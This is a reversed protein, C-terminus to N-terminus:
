LFNQLLRRYTHWQSNLLTSSGLPTFPLLRCHFSISIRHFAVTLTGSHSWYIPPDLSQRQLISTTYYLSYVAVFLFPFETSLSPLYAVTLEHLLTSSELCHHLFPFLRRRFSFSIRHFPVTLQGSHTWYPPPDLYHLLPLLRRRFPFSIIHFAVTLTGSHTWATLNIIWPISPSSFVCFFLSFFLSYISPSSFVPVNQPLRRYTHWQSNMCYPQPDLSYVPVFLFLFETSPSPLRAVTLETLHVSSGPTTHTHAASPSLPSVNWRWSFGTSRTLDRAATLQIIWSFREWLRTLVKQRQTLTYTYKLHTLRFTLPLSKLYLCYLLRLFM